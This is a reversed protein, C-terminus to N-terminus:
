ARSSPLNHNEAEDKAKKREDSFWDTILVIIAVVVMFGLFLLLLNIGLAQNIM